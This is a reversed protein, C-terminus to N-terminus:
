CHIYFQKWSGEEVMRDRLEVGTCRCDAALACPQSLEHPVKGAVRVRLWDPMIAAERVESLVKCTGRGSCM